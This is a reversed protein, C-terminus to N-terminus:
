IHCKTGLQKKITDLLTVRQGNTGFVGSSNALLEARRSKAKLKRAVENSITSHVIALTISEIQIRILKLQRFYYYKGDYFGTAWHADDYLVEYAPKLLLQQTPLFVPAGEYYNSGTTIENLISVIWKLEEESITSQQKSDQFKLLANVYRLELWFDDGPLIHLSIFESFFIGPRRM